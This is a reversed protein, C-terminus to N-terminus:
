LLFEVEAAQMGVLEFDDFGREALVIDSSCLNDMYGSEESILKNNVVVGTGM